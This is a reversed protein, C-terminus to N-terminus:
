NNNNNNYYYYMYDMNYNIKNIIKLFQEDWHIAISTNRIVGQTSISYCIIFIGSNHQRFQSSEM